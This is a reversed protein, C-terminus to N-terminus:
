ASVCVEVSMGHFADTMGVFSGAVPMVLRIDRGIAVPILNASGVSRNTPDFTIWGAGPVYVEAWAHTTGSGARGVIDQAPNHLYGSVIRAGFGLTRVADIFLVALDRCSGWGRELTQAPTQTGEEEREQYSIWALIGANIDKLLSLTDTPNSRVFAQSWERLRGAPDPHQPAALAGLDAWEDDSYRFPYFIATAAIDFIPWAPADLELEANSTIILSDTLTQFTATAVMNGAVDQAWTVAAPPDVMLDMSRLRLERSERPRLMLRHPRLSVPKSYRYTTRHRIRLTVM